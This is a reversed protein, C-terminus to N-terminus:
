HLEMPDIREGARRSTIEVGDTTALVLWAHGLGSVLYDGGPNAPVTLMTNEDLAVGGRDPQARVATILRPLTGWQACHVEVLFPVLGLGDVITLQDLDEAADDPCVPVGHSLWGGVVARAAAVAAGASFGLYPRDAEALWARVEAAVPALIAGYAPTLGGCVLLADAGNLARMTLGAGPPLLIPAPHCPGASHLLSAFRDFTAAGDGEDVVVCAVTPSAAGTAALFDGYHARATPEDRGGGILFTTIAAVGRRGASRRCGRRRRYQRAPRAAGM